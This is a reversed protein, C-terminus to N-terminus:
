YAPELDRRYARPTTQAVFSEVMADFKLREASTFDEPIIWTGIFRATSRVKVVGDVTHEVPFVLEEKAHSTVRTKKAPDLSLRLQMYGAATTAERNVFVSLPMSVQQPVFSHAAPVNDNVSINAAAPM